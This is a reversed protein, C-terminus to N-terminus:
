LSIKTETLWNLPKQYATPCERSAHVSFLRFCIGSGQSTKRDVNGPKNESLRSEIRFEDEVVGNVEDLGCRRCSKWNIEDLRRYMTKLVGKEAVLIVGVVSLPTYATM